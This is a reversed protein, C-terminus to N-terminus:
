EKVGKQLWYDCRGTPSVKFNCAPNLTCVLAMTQPERGDCYMCTRCISHPPADQYGMAQMLSKILTGNNCIYGVNSM